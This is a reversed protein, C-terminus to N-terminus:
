APSTLPVAEGALSGAFAWVKNAAFSFPTVFLIATAQAELHGADAAVLALLFLQNL